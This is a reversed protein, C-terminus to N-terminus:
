EAPCPDLIHLADDDQETFLVRGGDVVLHSPQDFDDFSVDVEVVRAPDEVDVIALLPVETSASDEGLVLLTTGEVAIAHSRDRVYAGLPGPRAPSAMDLIDVGDAHSVYVREGAVAVFEANSSTEFVSLEMPSAPDSIDVSILGAGSSAVFATTGALALTSAAGPLVVTPSLEVPASPDSVDYTHLGDANVVYFVGDAVAVDQADDEDDAAVEVMSAPDSVDVIKWGSGRQGVYAHDGSVAVTFALQGSDFDLTGLSVPTTPDAIDVVELGASAVALYVTDGVVAFGRADGDTPPFVGLQAPPACATAGTSGSGATDDAGTEDAGTGATGATGTEGGSTSGVDGASATAGSTGDSTGMTAQASDASSEADGDDPCGVVM